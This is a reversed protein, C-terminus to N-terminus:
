HGCSRARSLAKARRTKGPLLSRNRDVSAGAELGAEPRQYTAKRTKGHSGGMFTTALLSSQDPAFLAFTGTMLLIQAHGLIGRFGKVRQELQASGFQAAQPCFGEPPRKGDSCLFVQQNAQEGVPKLLLGVAPQM